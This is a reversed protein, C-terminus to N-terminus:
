KLIKGDLQEKVVMILAMNKEQIFHFLIKTKIEPWVVDRNTESTINKPSIFLFVTSISRSRQPDLNLNQWKEKYLAM